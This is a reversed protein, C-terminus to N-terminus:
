QIIGVQDLFFIYNLIIENRNKLARDGLDQLGMSRTQLTSVVISVVERASVVIDNVPSILGHHPM